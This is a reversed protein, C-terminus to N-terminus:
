NKIKDKPKTLINRTVYVDLMPLKSNSGIKYTFKIQPHFFSVQIFFDIVNKNTNFVSCIGDAHVSYHNFLPCFLVTVIGVNTIFM